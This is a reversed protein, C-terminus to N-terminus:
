ECSPPFAGWKEADSILGYKGYYLFRSLYNFEQSVIDQNLYSICYKWKIAFTRSNKIWKQINNPHFVPCCLNNELIDTKIVTNLKYGKDVLHRAFKVELKLVYDEKNKCFKINQKIFNVVDNIMSYKFDFITSIIHWEIENSEWHGWLDSTERMEKITKEFNDVGNIPLIISDNLLCIYSYNLQNNVIYCCGLLWMNWDTGAGNNHTYFLKCPLDSINKIEDSATFFLIDYGLYLFTNITQIVYDKVINDGDYHSYILCSNNKNISSNNPKNYLIIEEAFGHKNYFDAKSSWGTFFYKNSDPVNLLEYNQNKQNMTNKQFIPKMKLKSYVFDMCEKYLVPLSDYNPAVSRWINKIFITDLPINKGNFSNYRDPKNFNNVAWNNTNNCDFDYLLSTVRYGHQILIRSIGYEGTLITDIKDTKKGLVTNFSYDFDIFESLRDKVAFYASTKDVNSIKTETLIQIIDKTCTLLMFTSVVKPGTGGLDSSPLFSMCPSCIVANDKKMKNYFPILWHERTNEQYIPGIASANVLCLYDFIEWIKRKQQTEFYQIGNNWGEFDSCNDQKLVEIDPRTPITVECQYGNIVFLTTIDLNKWLKTNLGYKIFFSLNTQNKQENIREYYVYIIGIKATNIDKM